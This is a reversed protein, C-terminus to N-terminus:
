QNVVAAECLRLPIVPWPALSSFHIYKVVIAVFYVFYCMSPWAQWTRSILFCLSVKSTVKNSMSCFLGVGDEVGGGVWWLGQEWGGGVM